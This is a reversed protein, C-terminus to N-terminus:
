AHSVEVRRRLMIEYEAIADVRECSWLSFASKDENWNYEVTARVAAIAERKSTALLHEAHIGGGRHRLIVCYLHLPRNM